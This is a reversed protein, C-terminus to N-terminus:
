RLSPASRRCASPAQSVGKILPGTPGRTGACIAWATRAGPSARREASWRPPKNADPSPAFIRLVKRSEFMM